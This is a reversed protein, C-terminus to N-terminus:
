EVELEKVRMEQGGTVQLPRSGCRWCEDYLAQMPVTESCQPCWATGPTSLIELRAGQAISDRAVADFCFRMAEPEVQALAGLELRVVRVRGFGQARAAQEAIKVVAEALSMEHMLNGERQARRRQFEVDTRDNKSSSLAPPKIQTL